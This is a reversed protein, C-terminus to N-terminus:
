LKKAYVREVLNEGLFTRYMVEFFVLVLEEETRDLISNM